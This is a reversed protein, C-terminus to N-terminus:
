AMYGVTLVSLTHFQNQTHNQLLLTHRLTAAWRSDFIFVLRQNDDLIVPYVRLDLALEENSLYMDIATSGVVVRVDTIEARWVTIIRQTVSHRNVYITFYM